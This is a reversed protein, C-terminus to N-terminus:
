FVTPVIPSLSTLRLCSGAISTPGPQSRRSTTRFGNSVLTSTILCLWEVAQSLPLLIRSEAGMLDFVASMLPPDTSCLVSAGVLRQRARDRNGLALIPRVPLIELFFVSIFWAKVLALSAERKEEELSLGEFLDDFCKMSSYPVATIPAARRDSSFLVGHTGNDVRSIGTGDLLFMTGDNASIYLTHRQRDWFALRRIEAREGHRLAVTNLEHQLFSTENETANLGYRDYLMAKFDVDVLEQLTKDVTNFFYLVNNATRIFRGFTKLDTVVLDAICRRKEFAKDGGRRILDIQGKLDPPVQDGLPRRSATVIAQVECNM